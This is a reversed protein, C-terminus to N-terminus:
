RFFKAGPYRRRIEAKAKNRTTARLFGSVEYNAEEFYYLPEGVGWYRSWEDYGGRDLRRRELYFKM